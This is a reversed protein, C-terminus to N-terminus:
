DAAEYVLVRNNYTDAVALRNGSWACASPWYLSRDSPSAADNTEFSAQGLVETAAVGGTPPLDEFLLM